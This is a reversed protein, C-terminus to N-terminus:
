KEIVSTIITSPLLENYSVINPYVILGNIKKQYILEQIAIDLPKNMYELLKVIKNINSNLILYGFLGVITKNTDITYINDILHEGKNNFTNGLFVIDFDYNSLSNVLNNMIIDFNYKTNSTIIFDDEFIVSYKKTYITDIYKLLSIHSLYCGIEKSRKVDKELIFNKDLVGLNVYDDLNINVGNVADSIGINIGFLNEQYNINNMRDIYRLTIVYFDIQNQYKIESVLYNISIIILILTLILFITKM